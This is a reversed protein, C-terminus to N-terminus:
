RHAKDSKVHHKSAYSEYIGETSRTIKNLCNKYKVSIQGLLEAHINNLERRYFDGLIPDNEYKSYRQVFMTRCAEVEASNESLLGEVYAAFEDYKAGRPANANIARSTISCQGKFIELVSDIKEYPEECNVIVKNVVDANKKMFSYPARLRKRIKEYKENDLGYLTPMLEDFENGVERHLEFSVTREFKSVFKELSEFRGKDSPLIRSFDM